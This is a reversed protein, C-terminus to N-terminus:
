KDGKWDHFFLIYHLSPMHFVVHLPSPRIQAPSNKMFKIDLKRNDAYVTTILYIKSFSYDSSFLPNARDLLTKVNKAIKARSKGTSDPRVSLVYCRFCKNNM